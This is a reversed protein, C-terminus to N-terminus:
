IQCPQGKIRGTEVCYDTVAKHAEIMRQRLERYGVDDGHAKFHANMAEWREDAVGLLREHTVEFYPPGNRRRGIVPPKGRKAAHYGAQYGREYDANSM